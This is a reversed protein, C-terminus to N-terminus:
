MRRPGAQPTPRPATRAAGDPPAPTPAPAWPPASSTTGRPEAPAGTGARPRPELRPGEERWPPAAPPPVDPTRPAPRPSRSPMPSSARAPTPAPSVAARSTPAPPETRRVPLPPRPGASASTSAVERSTRPADRKSLVPRAVRVLPASRLDRLLAADQVLDRDGYLGRDFVARPLYLARDRHEYRHPAVDPPEVVRSWWPHLPEGPALPFWGLYGDAGLPEVGGPGGGVFAVVAPYWTPHADKPGVPFWAWRNRVLGWRGHHYPAWGWPEDSLWTWGWPERWIWRGFRYPTWDARTVRPFWVWGRDSTSEWEGWEDLDDIGQIDAHVRAASRVDRLRRSRGEVWRDWADGRGLNGIDYSPRALGFVRMQEGWGLRLDGEATAARVRGRAVRIASDGSASVDIRYVGPLELAVSVNPTALELEQADRGEFVHATARGSFLALSRTERGLSSLALETGPALFLIAGRLHLEAHGSGGVRLRDGTTLPENVAGAQWENPAESREVSVDGELWALRAVSQRLEDDGHEDERSAAAPAAFALLVLLSLSTFRRRVPM